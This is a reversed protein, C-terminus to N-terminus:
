LTYDGSAEPQFVIARVRASRGRGGPEQWQAKAGARLGILAAGVPSLISVRGRAADAGDPYSLTLLGRSGDDFDLEVRSHMTVVDGEIERSPVTDADELVEEIPSETLGARDVLKSLRVHDLETLLRGRHRDALASGKTQSTNRM